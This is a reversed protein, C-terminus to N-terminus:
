HCGANFLEVARRKRFLDTDHEEDAWEKMYLDVYEIFNEWRAANQMMLPEEEEEATLEEENPEYEDDM